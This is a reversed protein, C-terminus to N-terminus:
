CRYLLVTQNMLFVEIIINVDEEDLSEELGVVRFPLLQEENKLKNM